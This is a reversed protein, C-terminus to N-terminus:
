INFERRVYQMELMDGGDPTDSKEVGMIDPIRHLFSQLQRLTLQTYDISPYFHAMSALDLM